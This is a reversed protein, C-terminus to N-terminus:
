RRRFAAPHLNQIGTAHLTYAKTVRDPRQGGTIFDGTGNPIKGVSPDFQGGFALFLFQFREALRDVFRSQGGIDALFFSM